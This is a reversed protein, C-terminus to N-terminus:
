GRQALCVHTCLLFSLLRDLRTSGTLILFSSMLHLNHGLLVSVRSRTEALLCGPPPLINLRTVHYVGHMEPLLLMASSMYTVLPIQDLHVVERLIFCM